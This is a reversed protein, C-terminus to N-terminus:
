QPPLEMPMQPPMEMPMEAERPAPAVLDNSSL